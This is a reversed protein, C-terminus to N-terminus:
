KLCNLVRNCQQTYLTGLPRPESSEQQFLLINLRVDSGSGGGGIFIASHISTAIIM